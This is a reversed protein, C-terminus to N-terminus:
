QLGRELDAIARKKEDESLHSDSRVMEIKSLIFAREAEANRPSQRSIRDFESRLDSHRVHKGTKPDTLRGDSKADDAQDPPIQPHAM